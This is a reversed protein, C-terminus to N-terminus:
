TFHIADVPKLRSARVAPYVSVIIATTFVTGCSWLVNWTNTIPYIVPNLTAFLEMAGSWRSLDFGRIAILNNAGIGVIIGLIIGILGIYFSELMVLTIIQHPKTGMAMMIGFERTREMISMLMTNLIGLSVIVLVIMLIVYMFVNDLDIMEKLGPMLKQWTYVEYGLPTLSRELRQSAPLVDEAKKVMVALETVRGDIAALKQADKLSIIVFSSDMELAGMKFIGKLRFLDASLSGDAAQVMLVIKDGIEANLKDALKYGVLVGGKEGKKLYSGKRIRERIATIKIEQDTDIGRILVGYSNEATSILGQIEARYTFTDLDPEKKLVKLVQSLDRISKNLKPDDHYGKRYIQIHGTYTKVTNEIWQAHFGDTFGFFIIMASLGFTIASLTILTRRANRLVNRWAMKFFIFMNWVLYVSKIKIYYAM